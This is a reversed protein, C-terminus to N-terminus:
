NREQKNRNTKMKSETRNRHTNLTPDPVLLGHSGGPCPGRDLRGKSALLCNIFASLFCANSRTGQGELNLFYLLLRDIQPIQTRLQKEAGIKARDM